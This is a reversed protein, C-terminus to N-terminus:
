LSFPSLTLSSLYGNASHQNVPAHPHQPMKLSLLFAHDEHKMNILSQM